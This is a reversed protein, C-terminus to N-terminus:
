LDKKKNLWFCLLWTVAVLLLTYVVHQNINQLSANYGKEDLKGLFAPVPILRDSIELPMFRGWDHFKLKGIGVIVPELIIYYFLFIGLAIFAKRTIFALLFALSLQAFTQLAFLAIYKSNNWINATADGNNVIGIVIAVITYMLTIITAILLVDVMKALMFQNRSWGDIVNQRHTKFTYENTIFMIVVIVPIFIFISSAYAVTHWSEPFSFPNGVLMKVMQGQPGPKTILTKYLQYLVYTVGPYSLTVIGLMWWFAPYKRIKLWETKLLNTM